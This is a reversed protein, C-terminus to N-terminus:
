FFTYSVIENVPLLNTVHHPTNDAGWLPLRKFTFIPLREASQLFSSFRCITSCNKSSHEEGYFQVSKSYKTMPMILVNDIHSDLAMETHFLWMMIQPCQQMWILFSETMFIMVKEWSCKWFDNDTFVTWRAMCLDLNFSQWIHFYDLYVAAKDPGCSM